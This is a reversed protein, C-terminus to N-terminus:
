IRTLTIFENASVYSFLKTMLRTSKNECPSAQNFHQFFEKTDQYGRKKALEIARQVRRYLDRQKRINPNQFAQTTIKLAKETPSVPNIITITM